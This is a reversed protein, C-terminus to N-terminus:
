FHLPDKRLMLKGRKSMYSLPSLLGLSLHTKKESLARQVMFKSVFIMLIPQCIPLNQANLYDLIALM